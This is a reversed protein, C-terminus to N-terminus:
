PTRLISDAVSQPRGVPAHNVLGIRLGAFKAIPEVTPEAKLM